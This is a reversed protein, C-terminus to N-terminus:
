FCGKELGARSLSAQPHNWLPIKVGFSDSSFQQLRSSRAQNAHPYPGSTKRWGSVQEGFLELSFNYMCLSLPTGPSKLDLAACEEPIGLYHFFFIYENCLTSM